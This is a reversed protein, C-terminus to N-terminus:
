RAQETNNIITRLAVLLEDSIGPDRGPYTKRCYLLRQIIERLQDPSCDMLRRRCSPEKLHAIGLRRFGVMLAEVTTPAAGDQDRARRLSAEYMAQLEPATSERLQHQQNRRHTADHYPM